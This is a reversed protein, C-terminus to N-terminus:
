RKGNIAAMFLVSTRVRILCSFTMARIRALLESLKSSHAAASDAPPNFQMSSVM